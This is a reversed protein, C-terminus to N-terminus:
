QPVAKVEIQISSYYAALDAIDADSLNKAAVSMMENRRTGARYNRLERQLYAAPQGALNPADPLKAIGDLGHCAQCAIAKSRGAQVDQGAASGILSLAPLLAAAVLAAAAKFRFKM